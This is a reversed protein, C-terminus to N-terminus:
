DVLYYYSRGDNLVPDDFSTVNQENVLTTVGITFAANDARRLTYPASGGSWGLHVSGTARLPGAQLNAAIPFPFRATVLTSDNRGYALLQGDFSVTVPLVPRQGWGCEQDYLRLQAGDAVRWIRIERDFGGGSVIELGDPSFAVGTAPNPHGAFTRLLAGDAFRWLKVNNGLAEDSTAFTAGDPSFAITNIGNEAANSVTRI